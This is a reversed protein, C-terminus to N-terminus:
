VRMVDTEGEKKEEKVDRKESVGEGVAPADDPRHEPDEEMKSESRDERPAKETAENMESDAGEGARRAATRARVQELEVELRAREKEWEEDALRLEEDVRSQQAELAAKQSPLLKAPLYYLPYNRARASTASIPALAQPLGPAIRPAKTPPAIQRDPHVGPQARPSAQVDALPSSTCLFEALRRKHARRTQYEADGVALSEALRRAAARDARSEQEARRAEEVQQSERRLKEQLRAELSARRKAQLM